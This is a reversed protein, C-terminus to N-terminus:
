PVILNIHEQRTTVPSSSPKNNKQDWKMWEELNLSGKLLETLEGQLAADDLFPYSNPHIGRVSYVWNKWVGTDNVPVRETAPHQATHKLGIQMMITIIDTKPLRLESGEAFCVAPNLKSLVQEVPVSGMRNKIQILIYSITLLTKDPNTKWFPILLDVGTQGPPLCCAGRRYLLDSLAQYTTPQKVYPIFHSFGVYAEEGVLCDKIGFCHSMFDSVKYWGGDYYGEVGSTKDMGILLLLRGVLEGLYGEVVAGYVMQKRLVPLGRKVLLADQDEHYWLKASAITLVPDSLYTVLFREHKCDCLLLTAMYNAALEGATSSQPSLYVGTRCIVIALLALEDNTAGEKSKGLKESAYLLMNSQTKNPEPFQSKWLPRGCSVFSWRDTFDTEQLKLADHTLLLIYPHFLNSSDPSDQPRDSKDGTKSPTFNAISSKTDVLIAFIRHGVNQSVTKLARRLIRFDSLGGDPEALLSRAEDFAIWVTDKKGLTSKRKLEDGGIRHDEIEKWIATNPAKGFQVEKTLGDKQLGWRVCRELREILHNLRLNDKDTASLDRRNRIDTENLFLFERAETNPMPYISPSNGVCVYLLKRKTSVQQLLRTKGYGSSQCLSIYPSHYLANNKKYEAQCKDVYGIFDKVTRRDDVYEMEFAEQTTQHHRAQSEKKANVPSEYKLFEVFATTLAM